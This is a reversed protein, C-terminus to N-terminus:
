NCEKIAMAFIKKIEKMSMTNQADIVKGGDDWRRIRAADKYFAIQEFEKAEMETFIGGQLELTHKSSESLANYYTPDVACLYRKAAVHYLIGNLIKENKIGIENLLYDYGIQEHERDEIFSDMGKREYEILHGIDHLFAGVTLAADNSETWALTASQLAHDTQSVNEYMIDGYKYFFSYINNWIIEEDRGSCFHRNSLQLQTARIRRFFCLSKSM